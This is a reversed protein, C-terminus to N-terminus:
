TNNQKNNSATRSMFLHVLKNQSLLACVCIKIHLFICCIVKWVDFNLLEYSINYIIFLVFYLIIINLKQFIKCFILSVYTNHFLLFLVNKLNYRLERPKRPISSFKTRLVNVGIVHM